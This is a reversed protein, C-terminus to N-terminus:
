CKLPIVLRTLLPSRVLTKYLNTQNFYKRRKNHIIKLKNM